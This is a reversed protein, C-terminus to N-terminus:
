VLTYVVRGLNHINTILRRMRNITQNLNEVKPVDKELGDLEREFEAKRESLRLALEIDKNHTAKMTELYYDNFRHLLQEIQKQKVPPVTLHRVFRTTRRVEDAIAEIYFGLSHLRILDSPTLKFNKMARLPSEINYLAARYLLFYLRNVDKDRENINKYNDEQFTFCSEKFMTRTVVDMKRILEQINVKDMNLFDKAVITDTTQEMIELAILNQIIAQLEQIKSKLEKGKFIIQRYNTIYAASVERAILTAPKGDVVIVKEKEENNKEEERKSLILSFGSDELYVLDGKKMKNQRIWSKPLSIVFSSKGFSILKRYEM